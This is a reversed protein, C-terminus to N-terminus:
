WYYSRWRKTFTLRVRCLTFGLHCIFCYEYHFCCGFDITFGSELDYLNPFSFVLSKTEDSVILGSLDKPNNDDVVIGTHVDNSINEQNLIPDVSAIKSNSDEDSNPQFDGNTLSQESSAKKLQQRKHQSSCLNCYVM